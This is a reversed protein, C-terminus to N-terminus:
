KAAVTGNSEPRPTYKEILELFPDDPIVTDGTIVGSARYKEDDVLRDVEARYFDKRKLFTYISFNSKQAEVSMEQFFRKAMCRFMSEDVMGCFSMAVGKEKGTLCPPIGHRNDTYLDIWIGVANYKPEKKAKPLRKPRPEKLSFDSQASVNEAKPFSESIHIGNQESRNQESRNQETHLRSERTSSAHEVHSERTSSADIVEEAMNVDPLRSPLEKGNPAQHKLFNRVFGFWANKVRYKVLFGRRVLADLVKEFEIGDFPLIVAGLQRPRWEFRGERDAACWCGVFCLRLPLKEAIEAEYLADDTFLEPKVYRMRMM